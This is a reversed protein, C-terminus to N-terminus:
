LYKTARRFAPPYRLGLAVGRTLLAMSAGLLVMKAGLVCAATSENLEIEAVM